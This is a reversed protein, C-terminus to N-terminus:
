ATGNVSAGVGNVKLQISWLKAGRASDFRSTITFVESLATQMSGIKRSLAIPSSYWRRFSTVDGSMAELEQTLVTVPREIGIRSHKIDSHALNRMASVLIAEEELTFFRQEDAISKVAESFQSAVGLARAIRMGVAAFDAIRLKPAESDPVPPEALVKEVDRLIGGWIRNRNASIRDLIRSEDHFASLRRYTLLLLRDAVDPRGFKPNHATLGIVAQRKIRFKDNDTYLKRVEVDTDAISTALWDPLWKQWTDLNDIVLFPCSTSSLNLNNESTAQVLDRRRGYFLRYLRRMTTSKGAGPEGIFALIPRTFAARRFVIFLTWVRMLALAVEPRVDVVTDFCKEFLIDYWENGGPLPSEDFTFPESMNDWMFLINNAGNPMRTMGGPSVHLVDKGGTHLMLTNTLQNYHSMAGIDTDLPLQVTHNMLGSVVYREIDESQNLGFKVGLLSNFYESHRTMEIPRGTSRPVYWAGNDSTHVFDGEAKLTKFVVGEIRLNLLFKPGPLRRIDRIESRPDAFKHEVVAEARLVDKALEVDGNYRLGTFKNNASQRAVHYVTDRDVEARFLALMLGWLAASRDNQVTNYQVIFKAPLKKAARLNELIENPGLELDPKHEDVWQENLRSTPLETDPLAELQSVDYTQAAMSVVEVQQPGSLYKHNVTEPMRATKGLPWGAHDADEIAYTLKRSLTEHTESDLEDSLIWFGQTRGVSTQVLVSPALPLTRTDAADLDAQITKSPLVNEKTRRQARFLYSSFYVNYEEANSLADAIITDIDNPWKYWQDAWGSADKRMLSLCFWGEPATVVTELFTRLNSM